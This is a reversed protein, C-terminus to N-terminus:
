RTPRVALAPLSPYATVKTVSLSRDSKFAITLITQLIAGHKMNRQM